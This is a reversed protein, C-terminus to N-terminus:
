SQPKLLLAVKLLAKLFSAPVDGLSQIAKFIALAYTPQLDVLYIVHATTAIPENKNSVLKMQELVHNSALALATRKMKSHDFYIM